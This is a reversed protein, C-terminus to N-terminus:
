RSSIRGKEQVLEKLEKLVIDALALERIMDEETDIKTICRGAMNYLMKNDNDRKKTAVGVISYISNKMHKMIVRIQDDKLEVYGKITASNVLAKHNIKGHLFDDILDFVRQYNEKTIDKLDDFIRAKTPSNPPHAFIVRRDLFETEEEEVPIEEVVNNELSHYYDRLFLYKDLRANYEDIADRKTSYDYYIGKDLLLEYFSIVDFLTKKILENILYIFEKFECFKEYNNLEELFESKTLTNISNLLNEVRKDLIVKRDPFVEIVDFMEFGANLINTVEHYSVVENNLPNSGLNKNYCDIENLLIICEKMSLIGKTEYYSIIDKEYKNKNLILKKSLLYKDKKLFYVMTSRNNIQKKLLSASNKITQYDEYIEKKLIMFTEKQYLAKNYRKDPYLTDLLISVFLKNDQLSEYDLLPILEQYLDIKLKCNELSKIDNEYELIYMDMLEIIKKINETNM